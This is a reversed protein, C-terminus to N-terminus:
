PGEPMAMYLRRLYAKQEPPMAPDADIEDLIDAPLSRKSQGHERIAALDEQLRAEDYVAPPAPEERLAAEEEMVAERMRAATRWAVRDAPDAPPRPEARPPAPPPEPAPKEGYPRAARRDREAAAAIGRALTTAPNRGQRRERVVFWAVRLDGTEVAEELLVLAIEELRAIRAEPALSRLDLYARYLDAFPEERLLLHLDMPDCKLVRAVQSPWWGAGLRRAARHYQHPAGTFAPRRARGSFM